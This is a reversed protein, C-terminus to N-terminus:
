PYLKRTRVTVQFEKKEDLLFDARQLDRDGSSTAFQGSLRQKKGDARWLCPMMPLTWLLLHELMLMHQTGNQEKRQLFNVLFKRQGGYFICFYNVSSKQFANKPLTKFNLSLSSWIEDVKDEGFSVFTQMLSKHAAVSEAELRLVLSALVRRINKRIWTGQPSTAQSQVEKRNYFSEANLFIALFSHHYM